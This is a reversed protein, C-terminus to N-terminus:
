KIEKLLKEFQESSIKVKNVSYRKVNDAGYYITSQQELMIYKRGQKFFTNFGEEHQNSLQFPNNNGRNEIEKVQDVTLLFYNLKDDILQIKNGEIHARLSNDLKTDILQIQKLM